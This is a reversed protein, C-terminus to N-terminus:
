ESAVNGAAGRLRLKEYACIAPCKEAYADPQEIIKEIGKFFPKGDAGKRM